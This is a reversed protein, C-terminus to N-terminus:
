GGEFRWVIGDGDQGVGFKMTRDHALLCGEILGSWARLLPTRQDERGRMLRWGPQRVTATDLREPAEDMGHLLALLFDGFDGSVGAQQRVIAYYHMGIRVGAGHGIGAAREAGAVDILSPLANTLYTLAYNRLVKLRREEPWDIKPFGAPDYHPRPHDPEFRLREGPKLPRGLDEFFGELGPHGEATQGVCCYSLSPVGLSEGIRSHFGRMPASSIEPPIACLATGDYMWRPVGYYIWARGREDVTTAVEVGGLGNALYLYKAAQEAPPLGSLGLKDLSDLFKQGRQRAFTQEMMEAAVATGAKQQAFLILGIFYRHHLERVANWRAAQGPDILSHTKM